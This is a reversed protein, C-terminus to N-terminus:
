PMAERPIVAGRHGVVAGALRHGAAAAAAPDGGALRTALYAAAFSDGAATTDVVRAVPAAAVVLDVGPATVRCTQDARKLVLELGPRVLEAPPEPGFLPELDESSALVIDAEAITRRFAARAEELDPWGRPRFNTDFAVKSGDARARALAALLRERGAAGYLSLSVGSLYVLTYGLALGFGPLVRHTKASM